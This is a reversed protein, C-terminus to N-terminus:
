KMVMKAVCVYAVAILGMAAVCWGVANWFRYSRMLQRERAEYREDSEENKEIQRQIAYLRHPSTDGNCRRYMERTKETVTVPPFEKELLENWAQEDNKDWKM